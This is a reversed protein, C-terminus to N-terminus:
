FNDNLIPLDERQTTLRSLVKMVREATAYWLRIVRTRAYSTETLYRATEALIQM